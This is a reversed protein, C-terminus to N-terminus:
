APRLLKKSLHQALARIGSDNRVKDFSEAHTWLDVYDVKISDELLASVYDILVAEDHHWTELQAKVLFPLDEFSRCRKVGPVDNYFVDGFTIVPKKFLLSEWGGSGTITITLAADRALGHGSVTPPILVVNPIRVLSKYFARTRYGVMAPHEKIYLKMGVPLSRAAAKIVAVQDAYFPAYLLLAIEPEYHLPFYAFSERPDAPTYLDDYGILGRVKRKLKDWVTWWVYINTYDQNQYRRLDEVLTRAHWRVSRLLRSPLLFQVNARRLAQNNHTPSAQHHYPAPKDRFQEIFTRAEEARASTRGGRIEEFLNKVTTFTRYDESLVTNNGVRALDITITRIGKKRAINYLLMSGVSGVVSIVLVDPKETDLFEVIAKATVQLRQLMEQHSLTPRDFPYERVLQGQMVVRDIYLYPWLNPLGYERELGKLYELNVVEDYLRKHIDEELLLRTYAIDRQGVLFDYSSRSGVMACFRVAPMQEHLHCALAHGILAFRRQLFFCAKM